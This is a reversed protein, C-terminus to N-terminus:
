QATLDRQLHGLPEGTLVHSHAQHSVDRPSELTFRYGAQFVMVFDSGGFFFHGMVDGKRGRVGPTLSSEFGVSSVPSM